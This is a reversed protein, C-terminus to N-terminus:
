ILFYFLSNNTIQLKQNFDYMSRFAINFNDYKKVYNESM